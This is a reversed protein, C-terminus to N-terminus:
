SDSHENYAELYVTITNGDESPRIEWVGNCLEVIRRVLHLGLGGSIRKEPMNGALVNSIVASPIPPANDKIVFKWKNDEKIVSVAINVEKNPNHKIANTILNNFLDFALENAIVIVDDDPLDLTISLKKGWNTRNMVDAIENLIKTANVPKSPPRTTSLLSYKRVNSILHSSQEVYGLANKAYDKLEGDLMDHLMEIYFLAGQQYNSLDHSILDLYFKVVRLSDELEAELLKYASIDIMVSFIYRDSSDVTIMSFTYSLVKENGAPTTLKM